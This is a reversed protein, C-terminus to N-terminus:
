NNLKTTTESITIRKLEGEVTICHLKTFSSALSGESEKSALSEAPKKQANINKLINPLDPSLLELGNQINATVYTATVYAILNINLTINEKKARALHGDFSALSTM